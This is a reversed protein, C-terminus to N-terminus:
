LRKRFKAFWGRCSHQRSTHELHFSWCALMCVWQVEQTAMTSLLIDILHLIIM